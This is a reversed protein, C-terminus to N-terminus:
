GPLDWMSHLLYAWASCSNPRYELAHSGCSSLEHAAVVSAHAPEPILFAVVILLSCVEVLATEVRLSSFFRHLLLSRACGFITM